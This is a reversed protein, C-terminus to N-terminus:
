STESGQPPPGDGTEEAPDASRYRGMSWLILVTGLPATGYLPPFDNGVRNVLFALGALALMLLPRRLIHSCIVALRRRMGRAEVLETWGPPAMADPYYPGYNPHHRKLAKRGHGGAAHVGTPGAPGM